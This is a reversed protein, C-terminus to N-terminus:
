KKMIKKRCVDGNASLVEVVYPGAILVSLSVVAQNKVALVQQGTLSYVNVASVEEHSSITINNEVMTPFISVTSAEVENNIATAFTHPTISTVVVPDMIVEICAQTNIGLADNWVITCYKAQSNTSTGGRAYGRSDIDTYLETVTTESARQISYGQTQTAGTM